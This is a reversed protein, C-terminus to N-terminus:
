FRPNMETVDGHLHVHRSRRVSFIIIM